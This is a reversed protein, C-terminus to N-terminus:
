ETTVASSLGPPDVFGDELLDELHEAFEEAAEADVPVGRQSETGPVVEDLALAAGAFDELLIAAQITREIGLVDPVTASFIFLAFGHGEDTYVVYEVPLNKKRMAEVIQDAERINVRPDNAGQAILLPVKINDVHFLPSIKRNLAEDNTADGVRLEFMKKMPAWYPPISELLTKINSPGVIDVGCSFLDPTFTVGALTAYGGYSGGYICIKEPDAIGEKIAWKVADTLDDQMKGGWELNGSNLFKKGFGASARFNVQLTVYGRNAFWQAEGDYGWADRGWPGGHVNLVMPLNKSKGGQPLTLYSVLEMGDRAKIVVPKMRVLDYKELEPRSFFLFRAKRTGRNYAYYAVPGDDVQYLVVWNQDAHDRSIVRFEGRHAESLDAFNGRISPDLVRWENRLYNFSVAQVEYRDPHVMVRGVDVKPHVALVELEKGTKADIKVLRTTDNGLSSEVIIAKGDQTFTHAGGNEGFPWTVLDRWESDEKNRVRLITSGDSQNMASAGRIKFDADTIWQLVDGPNETDMVLAGTELNVRYMDFVRRDRINLGVLVEKPHDKDIMIGQARIGQFPTMDRVLKTRLDASYLHWNEDGGVDQIYVLHIGDEAWGYGRIGRDTDNTIMTDDDMGVTKVWVNLVGEDSPALYSIRTGDPSIQASAKRPYGFLVERPILETPDAIIPQWAALLGLAVVLSLATLIRRDKM